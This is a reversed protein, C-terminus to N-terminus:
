EDGRGRGCICHQRRPGNTAGCVGCDWTSVPPTTTFGAGAPQSAVAERTASMAKSRSASAATPRPGYATTPRSPM